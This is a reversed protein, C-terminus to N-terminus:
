KLQRLIAVRWSNAQICRTELGAHVPACLYACICKSNLCCPAPRSFLQTLSFSAFFVQMAEGLAIHMVLGWTMRLTVNTFNQHFKMLGNDITLLSALYSGSFNLLKGNTLM